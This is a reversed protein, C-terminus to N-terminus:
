KRAIDIFIFALPFAKRYSVKVELTFYNEEKLITRFDDCLIERSDSDM